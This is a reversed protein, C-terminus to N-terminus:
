HDPTPQPTPKTRPAKLWLRWQYEYEEIRLGTVDELAQDFPVYDYVEDMIKGLSERGWREYLFTVLSTAEGYWERVRQESKPLNGEDVMMHLPFLRNGQYLRRALRVYDEVGQRQNNVAQGEAFWDPIGLTRQGLWEQLFTHAPAPSTKNAELQACHYYICGGIFFLGFYIILADGTQTM